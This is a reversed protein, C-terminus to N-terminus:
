INKPKLRYSMYMLPVGAIAILIRALYTGMIYTVVLQELNVPHPSLLVWALYSFIINDILAAIVTSLSTRLWLFRTNTWLSIRQFIWIDCLQSVGYAVLSAIMIRPAPMFLVRMAQHITPNEPYQSLPPHLITLSMFLVFTIQTIFSILVARRAYFAGYHETMMDSALYTMAFLITGLAVPEHAFSFKAMHLVQINATLYALNLFCFLGLVGSLRFFLLLACGGVLFLVISLGEPSHAVTTKQLIHFLWDDMPMM